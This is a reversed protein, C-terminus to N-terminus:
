DPTSTKDEKAQEVTTKISGIVLGTKEDVAAISGDELQKFKIGM